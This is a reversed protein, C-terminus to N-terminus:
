HGENKVGCVSCNQDQRNELTYKEFTDSNIGVRANLSKVKQLNGSFFQVIDSMALSTALTSNTFSSPSSYEANIIESVHSQSDMTAVLSHNCFPCASNRPIVFPGIVSIDNLYGVNLFPIQKEVFKESSIRVAVQDDGSIIGFTTNSDLGQLITSINEATVYDTVIQIDSQSNKKKLERAIVESKYCGIDEKSFLIQRNLNSREIRDGDILIIKKPFYVSLAYSIFNGISGCGIVVFTTHKFRNLVDIPNDLLLNLYLANKFEETDEKQFLEEISTVLKHELLKQFLAFDLNNEILYSKIEEIDRAKTLFHLISLSSDYEVDDVFYQRSGVGIIKSPSEMMVTTFSTKYKM